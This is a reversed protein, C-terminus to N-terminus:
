GFCSNPIWDPSSNFFWYRHAELNTLVLAIFVYVFFANLFVINFHLSLCLDLIASYPLSTYIRGAPLYSFFLSPVTNGLPLQLTKLPLDISLFSIRYPLLSQLLLQQSVALSKQRLHSTPVSIKESCPSLFRHCSICWEQYQRFSFRM